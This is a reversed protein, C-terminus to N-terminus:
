DVEFTIVEKNFKQYKRITHTSIVYTINLDLLYDIVKKQMEVDLGDLPEDLCLIDPKGVFALYLLM